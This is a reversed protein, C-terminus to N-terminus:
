TLSIISVFREEGDGKRYSYFNPDCKTCIDMIEIHEKLIGAKVLCQQAIGRLDLSFKQDKEIFINEFSPFVEQFKEVLDFGVEYCDREISPGIGVLIDKPDSKFNVIFGEVTHEIIHNLLGKYGGHAIGIVEKDPDYFLIPLCDATIVALPTHKKSTILGDTDPIRLETSNEILAVTGSHIQKMCVARETIGLSKRFSEINECDLSGDKKKMSGFDKSSIGHVITKYKLFLEFQYKANKMEYREKRSGMKCDGNREM